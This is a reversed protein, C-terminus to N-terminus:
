PQFLGERTWTRDLDVVRQTTDERRLEVLESILLTCLVVLGVLSEFPGVSEREFTLLHGGSADLQTMRDGSLVLPVGGAAVAGAQLRVLAAEHRPIDMTVVVDGPRLSRLTSALRFESGDLLVARGRIIALQDAFRRAVGETQTSPLVWIRRSRDDLLAAIAAVTAPNATELTRAVNATEVAVLAAVPDAPLPQRAREADSRIRETLESRAADRLAAFGEYGLATALRVVTPHSTDAREAVSAVTGFALAEPDGAVVDAVRRLAPTLDAGALRAQVTATGPSRSLPM